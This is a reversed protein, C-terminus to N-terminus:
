NPLEEVVIHFCGIMQLDVLVQHCFHLSFKILEFWKVDVLVATDLFPVFFVARLESVFTNFVMVAVNRM